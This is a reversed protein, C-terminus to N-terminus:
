QVLEGFDEHKMWMVEFRFPKLPNRPVHSSHLNLMIPCHDSSNRPLHRIFGKTFLSRWEMSCLARDLREWIEECIGRKIMWTFKQGIFGMDILENDSIWDSFGIKSFCNRGGRKKESSVIENFDGMVVWPGKFCRRLASLYGWLSKMVVPNPNAYVMTRVWFLSGNDIVVAISHRSNAVVELKVRSDNWLLWIGGSFGLAEVVFRNPFGLNDIVRYAKVGSIRPEFVVLVEMAERLDSAVIDLDLTASVDVQLSIGNAADSSGGLDSTGCGVNTIAHDAFLM